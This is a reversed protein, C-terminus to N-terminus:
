SLLLIASLLNSGVLLNNLLIPMLMLFIVYVIFSLLPYELMGDMLPNIFNDLSELDGVTMAGIRLASNTVSGHATRINMPNLDTQL